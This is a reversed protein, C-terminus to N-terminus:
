PTQTLRIAVPVTQASGPAYGYRSATVVVFVGPVEPADTPVYSNATAGDIPHALDNTYWQYTFTLGGVNWGGTSVTLVSDVEPTGTIKPLTTTVPAVGTAITRHSSEVSLPVYGARTATVVVWVDDHWSNGLPTFTSATAGPIAVSNRMWQYRFALGTTNWTGTTATLLGGVAATGATTPPSTSAIPLAFLVTVAASAIVSTAHGTKRATVVVRLLKTPATTPVTYSSRTAGSIATWVTGGANQSQWVYSFSATSSYGSTDATLLAGPRPADTTYTIAPTGSVAVGIALTVAATTKSGDRYGVAHSVVRLSIKKGIDASPPTFTTRTQGPVAMGSVYWQYTLRNSVGSPYAFPDGPLSFTDGYAHGILTAASPVPAAGLQAVLTTSAPAFDDLSYTVVVILSKGIAANRNWVGALSDPNNAPTEVGDVYWKYTFQGGAPKWAGPSVTYARATTVIRPASTAVPTGPTITIVQSYAHGTAYGSRKATFEVMVDLGLQAFSTTYTLATAHNIPTFDAPEACPGAAPSCSLWQQSITATVGWSAHSAALRTGAAGSGAVTVAPAHTILATSAGISVVPTTSTTTAWARNTSSQVLYVSSGIYSSSPTFTAHTAGLIRANSAPTGRYWQYTSTTGVSGDAYNWSVPSVSADLTTGWGASTGVDEHNPDTVLEGADATPGSVGRRAIITSTADAHGPLHATVDVTVAQGDFTDALTLNQEGGVPSGDAKWDYDFTAGSPSWTGTSVTFTTDGNPEAHASAIPATVVVAAPSITVGVAATVRPASDTYGAKSAVVEAEVQGGVDSPRTTYTPSNEADLTRTAFGDKSVYWNVAYTTGAVSWSGPAVVLTHGQQQSIAPSISPATAGAVIQPGSVITGVTASASIPDLGDKSAFVVVSLVGGLDGSESTYSAGTAGYIPLGDRLWEYSLDTGSQNATAAVTNVLGVALHPTSVVPAQSWGLASLDALAVTEASPVGATFDLPQSLPQYLPHGNSDDVTVSLLYKGTQLRPIEVTGTSDTTAVFYFDEDDSSGLNVVANAIPDGGSDNVTLPMSSSSLAALNTAGSRTVTKGVTVTFHQANVSKAVPGHVGVYSDVLSTKVDLAANDFLKVIYTGSPLGPVAWKGSSTTDGGFYLTSKDVTFGGAGNSVLRYAVPGVIDAGVPHSKYTYTVTGAIKGGLALRINVAATKGVGLYVSSATDLTKASGSYSTLYGTSSYDIFELRYSGPDLNKLTYLGSSNTRQVDWGEIWDSGDFRYADVYIGKIPTNSANTVKGTITVNAEVSFDISRTEGIALTVTKAADYFGTGGYLQPYAGAVDQVQVTYAVGAVVSFDYVGPHSDEESSLVSKDRQALHNSIPIAQIEANNLGTIPTGTKSTLRVKLVTPADAQAPQAFGVALVSSVIVAVLAAAALRAPGRRRAAAPESM